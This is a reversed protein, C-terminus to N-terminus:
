ILNILEKIETRCLPCKKKKMDHYCRKHISHGCPEFKFWSELDDSLCICCNEGKQQVFPYCKKCFGDKFILASKCICMEYSKNVFHNLWEDIEVMITDITQKKCSILPKIIKTSIVTKNGDDLKSYLTYSLKMGHHYQPNDCFCEYGIRGDYNKDDDDSCSCYKYRHEYHAIRAYDYDDDDDDDIEGNQGNMCDDCVVNTEIKTELIFNSFVLRNLLVSESDNEYKAEITKILRHIKKDKHYKYAIIGNPQFDEIDVPGSLTSFPYKESEEIINTIVLLKERTLLECNIMRSTTTADRSTLVPM